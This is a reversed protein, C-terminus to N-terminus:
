TLSTVSPLRSNPLATPLSAAEAHTVVGQARGKPRSPGQQQMVQGIFNMTRNLCCPGERGFSPM